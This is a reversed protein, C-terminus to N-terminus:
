RWLQKLQEAAERPHAAGCIASVVAVSDAGAAFAAAATEANMQGIAILPKATQARIERIGALGWETITDTKTPTAYIPSLGIHHVHPMENSRLQTREEMSWGIHLDDGYEARISSPMRDSQGVHIGWAGVRAAVDVADNIVLPIGWRDTLRKLAQARQLFTAKPLDKERLQIIDVGGQIAEEAVWLWSRGACDKESLVLYLPYPFHPNIHM